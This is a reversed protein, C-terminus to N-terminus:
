DRERGCADCVIRANEAVVFGRVGGLGLNGPRPGSDESLVCVSKLEKFTKPLVGGGVVM